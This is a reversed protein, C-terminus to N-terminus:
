RACAFGVNAVAYCAFALCMPWNGAYGYGAATWVYLAAALLLPTATM